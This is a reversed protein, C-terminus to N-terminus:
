AATPTAKQLEDIRELWVETSVHCLVEWPNVNTATGDTASQVRDADLVGAAVLRGSRLCASAFSRNHKVLRKVLSAPNGKSRRALLEAPVEQTFAARAVSRTRGGQTLLYTPIAACRELTPQSALWHGYEPDTDLALPPRVTMPHSMMRVHMAKCSPLNIADNTGATAYRDPHALVAALASDTLMVQLQRYDVLPNHAHPTRWLSSLAHRVVRATTTQTLEATSRMVTWFESGIGHDQVYDSAVRIDAMEFFETDGGNGTAIVDAGAGHAVAVLQREILASIHIKPRPCPWVKRLTEFSGVDDIRLEIWQCRAAKIGIRAYSREDIGPGDGYNTVCTIKPASPADVLCGLVISSDVGGSYQLAINSYLSAWAHICDKVAHRLQMTAEMANQVRQTAYSSLHWCIQTAVRGAVIEDYEGGALEVIGKLATARAHHIPMVAHAAIYDWDIDFRAGTLRLCDALEAFYVVVGGIVTRYLSLGASPDQLVRTTRSGEKHFFAIYRGWFHGVFERPTMDSRCRQPLVTVHKSVGETNRAFLTGLVIGANGDLGYCQISGPRFGCAFVALGDGSLVNKLQGDDTTKERMVGARLAQSPDDVNWAYAIFRLM